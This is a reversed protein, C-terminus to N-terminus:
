FTNNESDLDFLLSKISPLRCSSTDWLMSSPLSSSFSTGIFMADPPPLYVKTAPAESLTKTPIVREENEKPKSPWIIYSTSSSTEEESSSSPLSLSPSPPARDHSNNFVTALREPDNLEEYTLVVNHQKEIHRALQGKRWFSKYCTSVPCHNLKSNSSQKYPSARIKTQNSQPHGNNLKAPLTAVSPRIFRLISCYQQQKQYAEEDDISRSKSAYNLRRVKRCRRLLISPSATHVRIHRSLEDSRAFRKDCQEFTCAHPKEGTHTRVHRVKHELRYFSKLCFDCQYPRQIENDQRKRNNIM